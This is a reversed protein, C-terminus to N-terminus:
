PPGPRPGDALPGRGAGRRRDRLPDPVDRPDLVRDGRDGQAHHRAGDV